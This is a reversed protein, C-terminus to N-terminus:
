ILLFRQPRQTRLETVAVDKDCEQTKADFVRIFRVKMM